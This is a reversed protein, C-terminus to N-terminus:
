AKLMVMTADDGRWYYQCYSVLPTRALAWRMMEASDLRFLGAPTGATVRPGRALFNFGLTAGPERIAQWACELAALAQAPRLTNLSGCFVFSNVGLERVLKQCLSPDTVFDARVTEFPSRACRSLRLRCEDLLEPMMEVGVYRDPAAQRAELWPLLDGLGCGMDAVYRGAFPAMAQLTTFRVEQAAASSYLLSGFTPGNERIAKRYLTRYGLDGESARLDPM